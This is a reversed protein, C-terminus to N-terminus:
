KLLFDSFRLGNHSFTYSHINCPDTALNSPHTVLNYTHAAIKTARGSAVAASEPEFGSMGCNDYIASM